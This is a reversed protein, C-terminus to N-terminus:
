NVLLVKPVVEGPELLAVNARPIGDLSGGRGHEGGGKSLAPWWGISGMDVMLHHFVRYRSHEDTM